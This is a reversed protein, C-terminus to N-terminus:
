TAFKLSLLEWLIYTPWEMIKRSKSIKSYYVTYIALSSEIYMFHRISRFMFQYSRPLLTSQWAPSGPEFGVALMLTKEYRKKKFGRTYASIFDFRPGMNQCAYSEYLIFFISGLNTFIHSKSRNVSQCVPFQRLVIHSWPEIFCLFMKEICILRCTDIKHSLPYSVETM